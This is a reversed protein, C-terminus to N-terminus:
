NNIIVPDEGSTLVWGEGKCILDVEWGAEAEAGGSGRMGWWVLKAKGDVESEREIADWWGVVERGWGGCHGGRGEGGAAREGGVEEGLLGEVYGVGVAGLDDVEPGDGGEGRGGGRAAEEVEVVEGHWM